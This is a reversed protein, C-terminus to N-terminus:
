TFLKGDGLENHFNHTSESQVLLFIDVMLNGDLFLEDKSKTM